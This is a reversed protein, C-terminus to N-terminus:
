RTPPGLRRWVGLAMRREEPTSAELAVASLEQRQDDRGSYAGLVGARWLRAFYPPEPPRLMLFLLPAVGLLVAVSLAPRVPAAARCAAYLAWVTLAAPPLLSLAPAVGLLTGLNPAV